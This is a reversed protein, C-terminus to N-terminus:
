KKSGTQVAQEMMFRALCSSFFQLQDIPKDTGGSLSKHFLEWLKPNANASPICYYQPAAGPRDYILINACPSQENTRFMSKLTIKRGPEECTGSERIEYGPKDSMRTQLQIRYGIAGYNYEEETTPSVTQASGPLGFAILFLTILLRISMM